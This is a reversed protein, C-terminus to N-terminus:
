FPACYVSHFQACLHIIKCSGLCSRLLHLEVQPDELIAISDQAAIVKALRSSLFQDFFTDTGWTYLLDWFSWVKVLETSVPPFNLSLTELLGSYNASPCILHLGFQPGHISFSDLKLLSSKSGIYTGDDLYWLHLNVLDHLKVFDIFQLLVLSFLLPGLPDGQQVGSSAMIHRSGFRLEAPQSYCWKVWASIEPFDEAIQEFFATRSCENFANKMDIKLLAISSNSTHQYIYHCTVHIATESGGPIGVGVQGYPIFVGPPSPRVALCCLRSILHRIVEGVAIPCVGGGKKPLATLPAGCLWPSLCSPAKGSLLHNMLCTLSLLCDHAAPATSGAIVDLLHQARLKSAGPSAGKPFAQLCSVSDDVTLAPKSPLVSVDPCSSSPHRHLLDDYTSDDDHGAVGQSSLAQLANSYRGERAWFLARAKCYLRHSVGGRPKSVKLDDLLSNWLSHIGGSQNWIHLRDLLISSMVCRRRQSNTAPIRLVAKAFMTLRVFAWVSSCAKRLEVSLVSALLPRVSRSVHAIANFPCLM